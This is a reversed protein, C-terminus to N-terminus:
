TLSRKRGSLAISRISWAPARTRRRVFVFSTSVRDSSSSRPPQRALAVLRRGGLVVVAGALELILDLRTLALEVALRLLALARGLHGRVVDGLDDRACGPDRDGLERGLLTLAQQPELLLQM